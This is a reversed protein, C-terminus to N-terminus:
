RKKVDTMLIKKPAKQSEEQMLMWKEVREMRQSMGTIADICCKITMDLEKTIEEITPTDSM